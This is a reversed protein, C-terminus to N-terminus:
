MLFFLARKARPQPIAFSSKAFDTPIHPQKLYISICTNTFLSTVTFYLLLVERGKRNDAINICHPQESGAYLLM